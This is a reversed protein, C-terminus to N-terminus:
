DMMDFDAAEEKEEEFAAESADLGSPEDAPPKANGSETGSPTPSSLCAGMTLSAFM